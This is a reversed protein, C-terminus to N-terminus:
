DRKLGLWTGSSANSQHYPIGHLSLTRGLDMGDGSYYAWDDIRYTPKKKIFIGALPSFILTQFLQRRTM